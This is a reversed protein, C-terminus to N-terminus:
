TNRTYSLLCERCSTIKNGHECIPPPTARREAEKMEALLQESHRKDAERRRANAEADRQKKEEVTLQREPLPEDLWGERNLWTAPHPIFQKEPLWPDKAFRRAGDIIDAGTGKFAKVFARKAAGKGVKRPYISWFEEFAKEAFDRSTVLELEDQALSEELHDEQITPIRIDTSPVLHHPEPTSHGVSTGDLVTWSKPGFRGSALQPREVKLWRKHELQSAAQNIAFRGLSTQREIQEYTLQYGDQHSMLYALLRFANASIEPDRIVSNPIQAFPQNDRRYLSVVSM